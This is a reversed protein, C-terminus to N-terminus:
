WSIVRRDRYFKGSEAKKDTSLWIATDAGKEVSRPAGEGGMDTRVWGPCMSFVKVQGRLENALLITQANIGAKSLRYGAYGGTLSSLEGMGSSVNIIRPDDGRLLLPLFSANMKMPGFYNVEMIGRIEEIDGERFAKKGKGIIGANNILVDLRGHKEEVESAAREISSPHSLDLQLVVTDVTGIERRATEGKSVDRCAMIVHFGEDSLGKAIGKGIGRNAGTVLAIRRDMKM